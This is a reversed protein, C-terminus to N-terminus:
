KKTHLTQSRASTRSEIHLNSARQTYLSPKLKLRSVLHGATIQKERQDSRRRQDLHLGEWSCLDLSVGRFM